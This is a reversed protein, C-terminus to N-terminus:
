SDSRHTAQYWDPRQKKQEVTKPEHQASDNEAHSPFEARKVVRNFIKEQIQSTVSRLSTLRDRNTSM